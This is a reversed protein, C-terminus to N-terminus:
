PCAPAVIVQQREVPCTEHIRIYDTLEARIENPGGHFPKLKIIRDETVEGVRQGMQLEIANRSDATTAQSPTGFNKIRRKPHITTQFTTIRIQIRSGTGMRSHNLATRTIRTAPIVRTTAISGNQNGVRTPTHRATADTSATARPTIPPSLAFDTSSNCIHHM